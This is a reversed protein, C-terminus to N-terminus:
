LSKYNILNDKRFKGKVDFIIWDKKRLDNLDITEFNKHDVAYIIWIKQYTQANIHHPM